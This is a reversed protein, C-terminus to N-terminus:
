FLSCSRTTHELEQHFTCVSLIPLELKGHALFPVANFDPPQGIPKTGFRAQALSVMSIPSVVFAATSAMMASISCRKSHYRENVQQNRDYIFSYQFGKDAENRPVDYLLNLTKARTLYNLVKTICLNPIIIYM